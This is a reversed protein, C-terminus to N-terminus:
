KALVPTKHALGPGDSLVWQKGCVYTRAKVWWHIDRWPAGRGTELEVYGLPQHVWQEWRDWVLRAVPDLQMM